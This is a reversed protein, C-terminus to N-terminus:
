GVNILKNSTSIRILIELMIIIKISLYHEIKALNNLIKFM